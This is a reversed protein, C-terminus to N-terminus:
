SSTTTFAGPCFTTDLVSFVNAIQLVLVRRVADPIADVHTLVDLKDTKPNYQTWIDCVFAEINIPGPDVAASAPSAAITLAGTGLTAALGLGALRRVSFSTLRLRV